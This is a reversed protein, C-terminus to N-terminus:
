YYVISVSDGGGPADRVAVPAAAVLVIVVARSCDRDGHEWMCYKIAPCHSLRYITSMMM